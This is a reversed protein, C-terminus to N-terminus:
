RAKSPSTRKLFQAATFADTLLIDVIATRRTENALRKFEVAATEVPRNRNRKSLVILINKIHTLNNVSPFSTPCFLVLHRLSSSTEVAHLHEVTANSILLSKLRPWAALNFNGIAGPWTLVQLNANSEIATRFALPDGEITCVVPLVLQSLNPQFIDFASQHLTCESDTIHVRRLSPPPSCLRSSSLLSRMHGDWDLVKSSLMKIIPFHLLYALPTSDGMSAYYVNPCTLLYALSQTRPSSSGAFSLPTIGWQHSASSLLDHFSRSVAKFSLKDALTPVFTLISDWIPTPLAVLCSPASASGNLPSPSLAPRAAVRHLPSSPCPFDVQVDKYCSDCLKKLLSPVSFRVKPSGSLISNRSIWISHGELSTAICDLLASLACQRVKVLTGASLAASFLRSPSFTEGNWDEELDDGDSIPVDVEVAYDHEKLLEAAWLCAVHLSTRNDAFCPIPIMPLSHLDLKRVFETAVESVSVPVIEVGM